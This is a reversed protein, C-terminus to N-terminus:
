ADNPSLGKETLYKEMYGFSSLFKNSTNNSIKVSSWRELFMECGTLAFLVGRLAIVNRM